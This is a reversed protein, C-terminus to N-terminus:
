DELLPTVYKELMRQSIAGTWALRVVGQTDIVYSSPLADNKFAALSRSQPDLWVPFTLEYQSVFSSVDTPPDGADIGVLVFGEDKHLDYFAQLTPMEAKCPPCWTAWNNILVVQGKLASISVAQGRPDSLALDPAKFEVQQPVVSVEQGGLPAGSPNGSLWVGSIVGLLLLGSGALLMAWTKMKQKKAGM